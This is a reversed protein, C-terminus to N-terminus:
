MSGRIRLGSQKIVAKAAFVTAAPACDAAGIIDGAGSAEAIDGPDIDEPAGEDPDM